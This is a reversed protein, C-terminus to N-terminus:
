TRPQTGTCAYTRGDGDAEWTVVHEMLVGGVLTAGNFGAPGDIVTKRWEESAMAADYAERSEFWHEAHGDFALQRDAAPQHTAPDLPEMWHNQVYRIMGPTAAALEAHHGKWWRRVEERDIDARFKTLWIVKYM